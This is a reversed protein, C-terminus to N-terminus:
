QVEVAVGTRRRERGTLRRGDRANYRNGSCRNRSVDSLFPSIVHTFQQRRQDSDGKSCGGGEGHRL